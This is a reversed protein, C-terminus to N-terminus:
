ELLSSVSKFAAPDLEDPKSSYLTVNDLNFQSMLNLGVVCWVLIHLLSFDIVCLTRVIVLSSITQKSYRM